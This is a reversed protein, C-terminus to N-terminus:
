IFLRTAIVAIATKLHMYEGQLVELQKSNCNNINLKCKFWSQHPDSSGPVLINQIQFYLCYTLLANLFFFINVLLQFLMSRFSVQWFDYGPQVLFVPTKINSIFEQPFFCQFILGVYLRLLSFTFQLLLILTLIDMLGNYITFPVKYPELRSTCDKKLSKAM